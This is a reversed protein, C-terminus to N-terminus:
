RILTVTGKQFYPRDLYDVASVMWVFVNTGQPIGSIKGDWGQGNITTKFLLQGWRNYVSFYKIQKIGVAIPRVVDNLGDGNPTFGTPVFVQPSTKFIKVTIFASDVCNAANFVLVKYRVSDLESGYIGVPNKIFANTLSTPPVWEYRTGGEANLQLPQNVVVATDHGAFPIIKPLVTVVITDYGPKPCGRNDYAALVYPFNGATPPRATPNLTNANTLTNTPTWTFSIGDHMGHLFAPQSFCIITDAGANAVPYPIAIIQIDRTATCSGIRATVTYTDSIGATAIPNQIAPNNVGGPPSWQFQLGDSVIALQIPDTACITDDPMENLTVFGVVRVQVEDNNICGQENLQVHYITTTIPNVTPTGSNANLINTLPTWSFVGTGSAQLQVADPRCILTDRFALTIPPKDIITVTHTITDRCGKSSTAILSIDKPGITSYTWAPNRGHSTDALTAADGFNWTWGNVVGYVTTSADNFQVPNLLCIGSSTFEPFFGPYVGITRYTSDVCGTGRNIVLKITYIGTDAYTYTPNAINSTDALTSPDGLDWFVSNAGTSTHSFQVNFGDCTVFNPMPNSVTLVCDSVQVILDKRHTAIPVGHRYVTICVCVVYKGFDPAMGSILGTQPNITVATNFPNGSSYSSLYFVSAYPPAAPNDFAANVAAGGGFADCFGYVLSDGTGDPDVAGFNLNFPANRCIVNVPLNFQPSSDTESGLQNTGPIVCNYTSGTSNAVNMLGNIRCCTQYVVTYGMVTNPLEVEMTYTAYTYNLSPAGQICAPFIIPVAPTGAPNQSILWDNGTSGALGPFKLGNDNNYIGIIYSPALAAGLPDDGKFLLLVIRYIKSNPQTGPGVYEYRMEGGIIHAAQAGFSLWFLFIPILLAKKM